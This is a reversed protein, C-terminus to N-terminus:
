FERGIVADASARGGGRILFFIAAACWLVPYEYGGDSWFFGKDLHFAVAYGMFIAVALAAPRTFLGITIALGGFFEVIGIALAWLLGPTYGVQELFQATGGIGGGGFAGFLKQAGHPVLNLGVVVRLLLESFGHLGSYIGGFAPIFYKSDSM